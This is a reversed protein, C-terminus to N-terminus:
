KSNPATSGDEKRHSSSDTGREKNSWRPLNRLTNRLTSRLTNSITNSPLSSTIITHLHASNTSLPRNTTNTSITNNSRHHCIIAMSVLAAVM